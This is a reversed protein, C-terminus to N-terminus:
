PGGTGGEGEGDGDGDGSPGAGAAADADANADAGPGAAAAARPRKRPRAEAAPRRAGGGRARAPAAPRKAPPRPAARAAPGEDGGDEAYDDDEDGAPAPAPRCFFFVTLGEPAATSVSMTAAGPALYFRLLADGGVQRVKQLLRRFGSPSELELRFDPADGSCRAELLAARRAAGRARALIRESGAGPDLAAGAPEGDGPRAAFVARGSASEARLCRARRYSFAVAEGPDKAVAQLRSLQPRSLAVALDAGRTPLMISYEGLEHKVLSTQAFADAERFYTVQTLVSAPPEGTILFAVNQVRRRKDARFADLLGRRSDVNALFVVRADERAPAWQFSTFREAPVAVYVQEDYLGSHVLLGERSFVLFANRLSAGFPSLLAAVDALQRGILSASAIPRADGDDAHPRPPSRMAAPAGADSGSM